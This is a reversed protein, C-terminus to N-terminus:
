CAGKGGQRQNPRLCCNIRSVICSITFISLIFCPYVKWTSLNISVVAAQSLIIKEQLEEKERWISCQMDVIFNSLWGKPKMSQVFHYESIPINHLSVAVKRGFREQEWDAKSLFNEFYDLDKYRFFWAQILFITYYYLIFVFLIVM